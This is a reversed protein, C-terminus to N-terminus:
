EPASQGEIGELLQPMYWIQKEDATAGAALFEAGDQFKLPGTWLNISGDGLGTIFTDLQQTSAEGLAPGNLFGVNTTDQNNLDTWDPALWLWEPEWAGAQVKQIANKYAPFWNFYPVGLCAQPSIDCAAIHDYPIAFVEKGAQRAKNAEVIGETTDIGSIIVDYDAGIFDTAVKTPDLTVGPINFWFGIWTVKFALEAAPKNRVTTWCHRAGLYTSNVLRRTEDNILPGLYAIKGTTSQLAAACGAIMKGYEMQGMMNGLNPPNQGTLVDDGSIHIFTVDPHAEAAERTGDKFDDSNTIIVQAGQGVLDDVVQPVQVNPRDAPNVKDVYIFKVGDVEQELRTMAEFHAQSWGRDNIPGVLVMGVTVPTGPAAATDATAEVTTETTAETTAEVTAETTVEELMETTPDATAETATIPEATTQTTTMPPAGCATLVLLVLLMALTTGRMLKNLM